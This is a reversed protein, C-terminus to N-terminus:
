ASPRIAYDPIVADALESIEHYALVVLDRPAEAGSRATAQSLARGAQLGPFLAGLLLLVGLGFPLM